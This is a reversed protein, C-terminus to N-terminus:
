HTPGRLARRSSRRLRPPMAVKRRPERPGGARTASRWSRRRKRAANRPLYAGVDTFVFWNM